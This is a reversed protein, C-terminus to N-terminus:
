AGQMRQDIDKDTEKEYFYGQFRDNRSDSLDDYVPYEDANFYESHMVMRIPVGPKGNLFLNIGADRGKLNNARALWEHVDIISGDTKYIRGYGDYHGYIDDGNPQLLVVDSEIPISKGSIASTFSFFGM